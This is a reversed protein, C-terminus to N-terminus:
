EVVGIMDKKKFRFPQAVRVVVPKGHHLPPEFKWSLLSDQAILLLREDVKDDAERLTPIRVNGETDIYFQFVANVIERDELLDIHFTPREIHTILPISDLESPSYIRYDDRSTAHANLQRHINEYGSTEYVVGSGRKFKVLVRSVISATEGDIIPVSYDWAPLVKEVAEAFEIRSAELLLYDDLEGFHNVSIAFSAFGEEVGQLKLSVPFLPDKNENVAFHVQAQSYANYRRVDEEQANLITLPAILSCLTLLAFRM